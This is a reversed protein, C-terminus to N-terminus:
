ISDITVIGTQPAIKISHRSSCRKISMMMAIVALLLIVYLASQMKKTSFNSKLM